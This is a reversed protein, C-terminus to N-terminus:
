KGGPYDGALLKAVDLTVAKCKPAHKGNEAFAVHMLRKNPEFVVSHHTIIGEISVGGLMNWARKTTL